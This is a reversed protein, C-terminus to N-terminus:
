KFFCWIRKPQSVQMCYGHLFKKKFRLKVYFENKLSMRLKLVNLVNLVRPVVERTRTKSYLFKRKLFGIFCISKHNKKRKQNKRQSLFVCSSFSLCIVVTQFLILIFMSYIIIHMLLKNYRLNEQLESKTKM